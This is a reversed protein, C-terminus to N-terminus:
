ALTGVRCILACFTRFTVATLRFLDPFFHSFYSTIQLNGSSYVQSLPVRRRRIYVNRAKHVTVWDSMSFPTSYM